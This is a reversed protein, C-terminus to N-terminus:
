FNQKPTIINMIPKQRKTRKLFASIFLGGASLSIVLLFIGVPQLRGSNFNNQIIYMVSLEAVFVLAALFEYFISIKKKYLAFLPFKGSKNKNDM